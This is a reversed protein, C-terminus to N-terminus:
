RGEKPVWGANVEVKGKVKRIVPRDFRRLRYMPKQRVKPFERVLRITQMTMLAELRNKQGELVLRTM